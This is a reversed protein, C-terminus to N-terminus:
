NKITHGRSVWVATINFNLLKKTFLINKFPPGTVIVFHFSMILFKNMITYKNLMFRKKM